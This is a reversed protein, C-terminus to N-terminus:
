KLKKKQREKIESIPLEYLRSVSGAGKGSNRILKRVRRDFKRVAADKNKFAESEHLVGLQICVPIHKIEDKLLFGFSQRAGLMNHTTDLLFLGFAKRRDDLNSSGIDLAVDEIAKEFFKFGYAHKFTHQFMWMFYMPSLKLTLVGKGEELTEYCIETAELVTAKLAETIASYPTSYAALLYSAMADVKFWRAFENAPKVSAIDRILKPCDRKLGVYFYVSNMWYLEFVRHSVKLDGEALLSKAFMFEAFTKHKFRFTGKSLNIAVIGFRTELKSLLTEEKIGLNRQKLYEAFHSKAEELSIEELQNEIMYRAISMLIADMAEYEKQSQLGKKIEWRGLTVEFYKAYLEPLTSPLEEVKQKLIDALLLAAIPSKPLERLIQSGKIDEFLRNSEKINKCLHKIFQFLQGNTLPYLELRHWKSLKAATQDEFRLSRSAVVVRRRPAQETWAALDGLANELDPASKKMEDFGDVLLLVTNKPDEILSTNTGFRLKVIDELKPPHSQFLEAATAFVPVIREKLFTAPDALQRATQRLLKSKGSGADGEILITSHSATEQVLNVRTPKARSAGNHFNSIESTRFINQEVYFGPEVDPLLTLSRELDDISLLLTTLYDGVSLDLETWYAAFHADILRIVHDRDLYHVSRDSYKKNILERANTSIVGSTIVWIESLTILKKGCAFTREVACEEIQTQIKTIASANIADVKAIVGVYVTVGLTSDRKELVFDAGRERSGHTYEHSQIGPLRPLLKGLLPHFEAVEDTIDALRKVKDM